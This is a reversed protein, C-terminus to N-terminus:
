LSLFQFGYEFAPSRPKTQRNCSPYASHLIGHFGLRVYLGTDNDMGTSSLPERVFVVRM